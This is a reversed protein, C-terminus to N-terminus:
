RPLPAPRGTGPAQSGSGTRCICRAVQPVADDADTASGVSSALDIAAQIAATEDVVGDGMLQAGDPLVLSGEIVHEGRSVTTTKM